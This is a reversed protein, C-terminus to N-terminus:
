GQLYRTLRMERPPTDDMIGDDISGTNRARLRRVDASLVSMAASESNEQDHLTTILTARSRPLYSIPRMQQRFPEFHEFAPRETSISTVSSRLGRLDFQLRELPSAANDEAAHAASGRTTRQARGYSSPSRLNTSSSLHTSTDNAAPQQASLHLVSLPNACVRHGLV